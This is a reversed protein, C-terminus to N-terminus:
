PKKRNGIKLPFLMPIKKMYDEYESGFRQLLLKEEYKSIFYYFVIIVLWVIVSFLSFTMLILGLYVLISAFYIPHRVVGFAGTTIVHPQERKEGFVTKLGSRALWGAIFLIVVAVPIRIYIYVYESLSTSYKFIFSDAIWIILFVGLLILQGMDGLPHEGTLDDRDQFEKRWHKRVRDM